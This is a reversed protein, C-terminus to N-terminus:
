SENTWKGMKLHTCRVRMRKMSVWAITEELKRKHLVFCTPVEEFLKEMTAGEKILATAIAIKSTTKAEKANLFLDVEVKYSVFDEDKTVYRMVRQVDRASQYNGHQGTLEDLASANRTRFRAPLSILCHLHPNGDEHNERGVVAFVLDPWKTKIKTMVDEKSVSCQPSTLYLNKAKLRLKKPLTSCIATSEVSTETSTSRKTVLTDTEM